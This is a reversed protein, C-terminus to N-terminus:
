RTGKQGAESIICVLIRRHIKLYDYFLSFKASIGIKFVANFM